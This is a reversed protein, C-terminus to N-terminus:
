RLCEQPPPRRPPSPWTIATAIAFYNPVSCLMVAAVNAIEVPLGASRILLVTIGVNLGLAAVNALQYKLYRGFLARNGHVPVDSWTWWTHGLFNHLAALEVGVATAIAPSWHFRRTLLIIAAIQVLFGGSAVCNFVGWRRLNPGM